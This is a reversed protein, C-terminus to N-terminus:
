QIALIMKLSQKGWNINNKLRNLKLKMDNIIQRHTVLYEAQRQSDAQQMLLLNWSKQIQLYDAKVKQKYEFLTHQILKLKEEYSNLENLVTKYELSKARIQKDSDAISSQFHIIDNQIKRLDAEGYVISTKSILLILLGFYIKEM